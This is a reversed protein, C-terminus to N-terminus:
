VTLSAAHRLVVGFRHASIPQRGVLAVGDRLQGEPGHVKPAVADRLVVDFCRAPISQRRVLPVSVHHGVELAHIGEAAPHHLVVYLGVLPPVERRRSLGTYVPHNRSVAAVGKCTEHGGGWSASAWRKARSHSAACGRSGCQGGPWGQQRVCLMSWSLEAIAPQFFCKKRGTQRKQRLCGQLM